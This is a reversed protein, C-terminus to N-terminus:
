KLALLTQASVALNGAPALKTRWSTPGLSRGSATVEHRLLPYSSSDPSSGLALNLVAFIQISWNEGSWEPMIVEHQRALNSMPLKTCMVWYIDMVHGDCSM